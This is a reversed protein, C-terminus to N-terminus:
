PFVTSSGVVKIQDRALAPGGTCVAAVVLASAMVSIRNVESERRQTHAEALALM